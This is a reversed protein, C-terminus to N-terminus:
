RAGVPQGTTTAVEGAEMTQKFRRLDERVQNEPAEGFLGAVAAGLRGAPPAYELVVKVETGRGGPAPTFHVSGANSVDANPLSRWGILENERETIIEADWAVSRGAPGKAVWHSRNRDLVQVSQLHDMFRPLNAFNRWFRYLEAAPRNVTVTREVKIGEGHAISANPSATSGATNIRLARYVPCAGTVGRYLMEGGVAAMLLGRLNRRSLGYVALAGGGAGSVWREPTSVNTFKRATTDNM